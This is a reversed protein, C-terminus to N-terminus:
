AECILFTNGLSKNEMLKSQRNSILAILKPNHPWAWTFDINYGKQFYLYKKM